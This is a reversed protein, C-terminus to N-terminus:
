HRSLVVEGLGVYDLQLGLTKPERLHTAIPKLLKILESSSTLKTRAAGPELKLPTSQGPLCLSVTRLEMRSKCIMKCARFHNLCCVGQFATHGNEQSPVRIQISEGTHHSKRAPPRIQGYAVRTQEVLDEGFCFTFSRTAMKHPGLRISLFFVDCMPNWKLHEPYGQGSSRPFLGSPSGAHRFTTQQLFPGGELLQRSLSRDFQRGLRVLIQTLM